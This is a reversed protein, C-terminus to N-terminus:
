KFFIGDIWLTVPRREYLLFIIRQVNDREDLSDVHKWGNKASKFQKDDLKVSMTSWTNGPIKLQKSEMFENKSDIYAIGINLPTTGNQFIRFVMEKNEKLNLAGTRTFASKDKAGGSTKVAIVKKGDKDTTMQCTCPIADQWKEDQWAGSGALGSDLNKAPQQPNGGADPNVLKALEKAREATEKDDPHVVLWDNFCKLAKDLQKTNDYCQGLLKTFDPGIGEQGDLKKFLDIADTYKGKDMAWVAVKYHGPVDDNALGELQSKIDYEIRQIKNKPIRIQGAENHVLLVVYEETERLVKGEIRLNTEKMFVTDARLVCCSLLLTAAFTKKFAM